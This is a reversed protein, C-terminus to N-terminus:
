RENRHGRISGRRYGMHGHNYTRTPITWCSVLYRCLRENRVERKWTQRERRKNRRRVTDRWSYTGCSSCECVGNVYVRGIMRAM